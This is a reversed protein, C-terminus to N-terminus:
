TRKTQNARFVAFMHRAVTEPTDRDQKFWTLAWNLAGLLALRFHSSSIADPLGLADVLDRFVTEYRDRQEIM